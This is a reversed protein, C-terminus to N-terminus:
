FPGHGNKCRMTRLLGTVPKIMNTYLDGLSSNPESYRQEQIVERRGHSLSVLRGLSSLLM